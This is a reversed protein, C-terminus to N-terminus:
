NGYGRYQLTGNGDWIEGFSECLRPVSYAPGSAEKGIYPVTHLIKM